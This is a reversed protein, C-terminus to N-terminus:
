ADTSSVAGDSAAANDGLAARCDLNQSPRSVAGLELFGFAFLPDARTSVRLSPGASPRQSPARSCCVLRVMGCDSEGRQPVSQASLVSQTTQCVVQVAPPRM